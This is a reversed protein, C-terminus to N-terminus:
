LEKRLLKLIHRIQILEPLFYEQVKRHKRDRVMDKLDNRQSMLALIVKIRQEQTLNIVVKNNKIM